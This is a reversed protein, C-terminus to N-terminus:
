RRGSRSKRPPATHVPLGLAVMTAEMTSEGLTPHAHITDAIDDLTAELRMALVGEPILDSASPGIIHVGLVEGYKRDAVVKVLGETAGYTQARGLATFPFRGVVVDHGADAAKAETLGVSAVEPHTFTAAPVAKYDIREDHGAIVAAAVLGQHSAVHALLVKGTVDGIAHVGPVNTRLQDDVEIWGRANTAVGARELDLGETNPRRGVGVLVVDTQVPEPNQGDPDTITVQLAAAEKGGKRGAVQTIESVTRNTQVKIGRKTFSRALTKGMDEDEAPLLTPLLEVMTVESGFANFMTAWEAGVASAGIIVIRGPVEGLLFAGDSTVVGPLDIGPIPLLVPTSGTAVILNRGELRAQPRGDPAPPANYLPGGAGLPAEGVAVVEVATPGVFRAHGNVVTVGNAKLLSAVGDTLTKTAREKRKVVASYDLRVNDALVGYEASHQMTELVEASRLMAKTPICGWNLC